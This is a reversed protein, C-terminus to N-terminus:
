SSFLFPPSLWKLALLSPDICESAHRVPPPFRAVFIQRWGSGYSQAQAWRRQISTKVHPWSFPNFM